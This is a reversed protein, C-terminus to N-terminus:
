IEAGKVPATINQKINKNVFTPTACHMCTRVEPWVVCDSGGDLVSLNVSVGARQCVARFVIALVIPAGVGTELVINMLFADMNVRQAGKHTLPQRCCM